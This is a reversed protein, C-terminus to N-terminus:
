ATPEIIQVIRGAQDMRYKKNGVQVVAGTSESAKQGTANRLASLITQENSAPRPKTVVNQLTRLLNEMGTQGQYAMEGGLLKALTTGTYDAPVQAISQGLERLMDLINKNPKEQLPLEQINRQKIDQRVGKGSSTEISGAEGMVPPTIRKRVSNVVQGLDTIPEINTDEIQQPTPVFRMKGSRSPAVAGLGLQALISPKVNVYQNRDLGMRRAIDMPIDSAKVREGRKLLDGVKSDNLLMSEDPTLKVGKNEDKQAMKNEELFIKLLM